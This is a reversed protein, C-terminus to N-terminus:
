VQPKFDELEPNPNRIKALYTVRPKLNLEGLMAYNRNNMKLKAVKSNNDLINGFSIADAPCSQQCAAVVEGELLDRGEKKATVKAQNIRQTCFTCKEMVGRSRVTVDPNQAMQFVQPYDKTYNFYNFRRVKFPCNNACYRTGVCRNYAMVNLGEEDHVTAAVPCVQECPAMECHVCNVPQYVIEPDQLDGSFYRDLRIWSMERGDIVNDKGVISINNESQCAIMCVNCGTCANLDITMGWQNGEDYAPEEWLSKLPPHEVMEAAFAPHSKYEDISAERVLPRGEMSGHDQTNALEFKEGTTKLTANFAFDKSKSQRLPYVNFGVKNGVRGADTRGYGLSVVVTNDAQGPIIWVPLELSQKDCTLSIMDSNNL